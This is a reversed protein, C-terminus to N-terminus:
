TPKPKKRRAKKRWAPNGPPRGKKAIKGLARASFVLRGWVRKFPIRQRFVLQRLTSPAIGLIKAAEASGIQDDAM